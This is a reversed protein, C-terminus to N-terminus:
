RLSAALRAITRQYATSENWANLVAFNNSGPQYGGMRRWGNRRLFNATSALADAASKVLDRRGDGNGDIAYKLYNGAMFQTQGLEGHGAGKMNSRAIWGRDIIKLAALLHTRFFQGRRCDHSLTALSNIADLKGTYGGFNSELGWITVLVERQVGYRKELSNFLRRNRALRKRARPRIGKTKKAYFREFNGTARGAKKFYNAQRRDFKIVTRSYRASALANLGRNGIGSKRATTAFRKKFGEFGTATNSCRQAHAASSTAVVFTAYAAVTLAAAFSLCYLRSMKFLGM